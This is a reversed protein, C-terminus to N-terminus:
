NEKLIPMFKGSLAVNRNLFMERLMLLALFIFKFKLLLPSKRSYELAFPNIFLQRQFPKLHGNFSLFLAANM